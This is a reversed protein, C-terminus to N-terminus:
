VVSKRDEADQRLQMGVPCIYDSCRSERACMLTSTGAFFINRGQPNFYGSETLVVNFSSKSEFYASVSRKAQLDSLALPSVPNDEKTGRLTSTFTAQGAGLVLDADSASTEVVLDSEDAVIYNSFGTIGISERSEHGMGHDGDFFTVVFRDLVKDAGTASDKLSFVLDTTSGSAMNIVGFSQRIGNRLVGGTPNLMNPTYASSASVLLDTGPAVQGFLIGEDGTDPGANGLNSRIVTTFQLSSECLALEEVVVPETIDTPPVPPEPGSPEELEGGMGMGMGMGRKRMPRPLMCNQMNRGSCRRGSSSIQTTCCANGGGPRNQCGRGGCRGCEGGCCFRGSKLGTQCLDASGRGMGRAPQSQKSASLQLLSLADDVNSDFAAQQSYIPVSLVGAICALFSSKM